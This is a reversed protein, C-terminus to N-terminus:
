KSSNIYCVFSVLLSIISLSILSPTDSYESMMASLASGFDISSKLRLPNETLGAFFPGSLIRAEIDKNCSICKLTVSFLM